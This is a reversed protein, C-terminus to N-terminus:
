RSMVKSGLIGNMAAIWLIHLAPHLHRNTYKSYCVFWWCSRGILEQFFPHLHSLSPANNKRRLMRAAMRYRAWLFDQQEHFALNNNCGMRWFDADLRKRVRAEVDVGSEKSVMTSLRGMHWLESLWRRPIASTAVDHSKQVIQGM